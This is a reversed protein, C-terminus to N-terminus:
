IRGINRESKMPKSKTLQVYASHSSQSKRPQNMSQFTLKQQIIESIWATTLEHCFTM